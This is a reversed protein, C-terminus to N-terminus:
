AAAASIDVNKKARNSQRGAFRYDIILPAHDSFNLSKFIEGRYAAAALNFTAAQYDIRWGVNKERARGRNSWWTYQEDDSNLRRFVDAFEHAGFLRSMWAREQPLYGSNKQNGRWNCIDRKAHVINFDGCILHERSDKKWEAIKKDALNMMRYKFQLRSEGSTGSPFYISAVAFHPFDLRLYRGESDIASDGFSDCVALPKIRSYVGVGAYGPKEAFRFYGRMGAPNRMSSDLDSDRARIEQMCVIDPKIQALWEGFGKRFAARIGNLNLTVVRLM